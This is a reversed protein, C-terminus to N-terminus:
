APRAHRLRKQKFLGFSQSHQVHCKSLLKIKFQKRGIPCAVTSMDMITSMIVEGFTHKHGFYQNKPDYIISSVFVLKLCITPGKFRSGEYFFHIAAFAYGPERNGKRFGQRDCCHTGLSAPTKWIKQFPRGFRRSIQGQPPLM